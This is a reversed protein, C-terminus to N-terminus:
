IFLQHLLVAPVSTRRLRNIVRLLTGLVMARLHCADWGKGNVLSHSFNGTVLPCDHAMPSLVFIIYSTGTKDFTSCSKLFTTCTIDYKYQWRHAMAAWQHCSIKRVRQHVSSTLHTDGVPWPVWPCLPATEASHSSRSCGDPMFPAGVLRSTRGPRPLYFVKVAQLGGPVQWLYTM